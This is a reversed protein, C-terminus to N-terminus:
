AERSDLLFKILSAKLTDARDDTAAPISFLRCRFCLDDLMVDIVHREEESMNDRQELYHKTLNSLSM